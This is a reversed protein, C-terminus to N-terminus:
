PHLYIEETIKNLLIIRSDTDDKEIEKHYVDIYKKKTYDISSLRLLRKAFVSIIGNKLDSDYEDPVFSYYNAFGVKVLNDIQWDKM